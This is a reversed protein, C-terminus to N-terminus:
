KGMELVEAGALLVAGIGHSDNLPTPRRYYFRLDEDVGTGACIGEIQGDPRIKSEIGRWGRMVFEAFQRDIYGRNVSRAIAYTFMASCSTELFSDDRDLLQHWLGEGGQLRVIGRIHRRLLALLTDRQPHGEPLRDLLEVQALLAWGNARGWFAVGPRRVDSYWCHHMVGLQEDFLYKHFNVVQKAADDFCSAGGPLGARRALFVVSMYLDDAWLTWKRPFTRVLTGDELRAQRTEIHARARDVYTRYREQPDLRLVEITAAGMAGCDDLEEMMFFQGFPYEWKSESIRRKEFYKYSDFALAINKRPFETCSSDGLQRGIRLMALNLVGNTYRWDNLPSALALTAGLPAREPYLYRRGDHRDEFQFSADSLVHAAVLRVIRETDDAKQAAAQLPLLVPLLLAVLFRRDPNKVRSGEQKM